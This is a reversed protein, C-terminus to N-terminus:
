LKELGCQCDLNHWCDPCIGNLEKCGFDCGCIKCKMDCNCKNM